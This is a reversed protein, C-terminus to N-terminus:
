PMTSFIKSLQSPNKPPLTFHGRLKVFFDKPTPPPSHHKQTPFGFYTSVDTNEDYFQKRNMIQQDRNMGTKRKEEEFEEDLKELKEEFGDPTETTKEYILSPTSPETNLDLSGNTSNAQVKKRPIKIPPSIPPGGGRFNYSYISYGIGVIIGGIIDMIIYLFIINNYQIHPANM